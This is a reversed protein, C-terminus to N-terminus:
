KLKNICLLVVNEGPYLEYMALKWDYMPYLAESHNWTNGRQSLVIASANWGGVRQETIRCKIYYLPWAWRTGYLKNNTPNRTDCIYGGVFLREYNVLNGKFRYGGIEVVSGIPGSKPVVSWVQM